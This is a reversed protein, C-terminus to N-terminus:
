PVRFGFSKFTFFAFRGESHKGIKLRVNIFVLAHFVCELTRLTTHDEAISGAKRFMELIVHTFRHLTIETTVFEHVLLSELAVNFHVMGFEVLTILAM